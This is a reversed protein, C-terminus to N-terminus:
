VDVDDLGLVRVVLPLLGHDHQPSLCVSLFLPTLSLFIAELIRTQEYGPQPQVTGAGGAGVTGGGALFQLGGEAVNVALVNDPLADVGSM